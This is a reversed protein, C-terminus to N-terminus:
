DLAVAGSRAAGMIVANVDRRPRALRDARGIGAADGIGAVLQAAIAIQHQDLMRAAIHGSVGMVSFQQYLAALRHLASLLDRRRARGARDVRRLKMELDPAAGM